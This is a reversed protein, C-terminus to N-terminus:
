EIKEDIPMTIALEIILRLWEVQVKKLNSTQIANVAKEADTVPLDAESQAM